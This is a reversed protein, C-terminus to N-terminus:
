LNKFWVEASVNTSVSTKKVAPKDSLARKEEASYLRGPIILALEGLTVRVYKVREWQFDPALCVPVDPLIAGAKLTQPKDLRLLIDENLSRRQNLLPIVDLSQVEEGSDLGLWVQLTRVTLPSPLGVNIVSYVAFSVPKALRSNFRRSEVASELFSSFVVYVGHQQLEGYWGPKFLSDDEPGAPAKEKKAAPAAVSPRLGADAAPAARRRQSNVIVVLLTLVSVALGVLLRNKVRRSWHLRQQALAYGGAVFAIVVFFAAFVNFAPVVPAPRGYAGAEM